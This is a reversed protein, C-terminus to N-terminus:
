NDNGIFEFMSKQNKKVKKEFNKLKKSNKSKTKKVKTYKERQVFIEEKTPQNSKISCTSSNEMHFKLIHNSLDKELIIEGCNECQIFSDFEDDKKKEFEENSFIGKNKAEFFKKITHANNTNKDVDSDTKPIIDNKTQKLAIKKELFRAEVGDISPERKTEQDQAEFDEKSFWNRIKQTQLPTEFNGVAIGLSRIKFEKLTSYNAFFLDFALGHIFNFNFTEKDVIILTSHNVMKSGLFSVYLSLKKPLQNYIEFHVMIRHYLEQSLPILALSVDTINTHYRANKASMITKPPGKEKVPADDMGRVLNYLWFGRHPFLNQLIDLSIKHVDAVTNWGNEELREYMAPGIYPVKRVNLKHLYPIIASSFIITQNDPKKMGGALKALTKNVCVGGTTSYGLDNKLDERVRKLIISGIYLGFDIEVNEEFNKNKVIRNCLDEIEEQSYQFFDANGLVNCVNIDININNMNEEIYEIATDTLDWYCEDISAVEVIKVRDKIYNFINRSANRYERLQSPILQLDPIKKLWEKAYNAIKPMGRSRAEYNTTIATSRQLIAIPKGKLNPNLIEECQCYFCDMDLLIIIRNKHKM